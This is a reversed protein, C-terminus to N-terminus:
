MLLYKDVVRIEECYHFHRPLDANFIGLQNSNTESVIMETISILKWDDLEKDAINASNQREAFPM